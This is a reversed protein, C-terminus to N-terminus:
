YGDNMVDQQSLTREEQFQLILDIEPFHGGKIFSMNNPNYNTQINTCYSPLIRTAIPADDYQLAIEFKYPYRYGFSIGNAQFDYPYMHSRFWYIIDKITNAEELSTPILKHQFTFSRFNVSRFVTRKNPNVTLGANFEAGAQVASGGLKGPLQMLATAALGATGQLIGEVFSNLAGPTDSATAAGSLAKGALAGTFGLEYQEYNVGDSYALNTPLYLIVSGDPPPEALAINSTVPVGLTSEIASASSSLLSNFAESSPSSPIATFIVRGKYDTENNIPFRYVTNAM